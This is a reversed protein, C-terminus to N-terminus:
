QNDGYLEKIIDLADMKTGFFRPDSLILNTKKDIEIQNMSLIYM